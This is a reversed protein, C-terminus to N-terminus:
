GVTARRDEPRPRDTPLGEALFHLSREIEPLQPTPAGNLHGHLMGLAVTTQVPVGVEALQQAFLEGSSRLDDYESLVIRTPPLGELNALGPMLQSPIDSLRGLYARTIQAVDDATFRVLRPLARMEAALDDPLAPVPFHLVPYALILGAPRVRGEDRLRVAASSALNGGASAGGIALGAANTGLEDTSATFWDWASVVDDLPVPFRVTDDALRYDVSVVVAGRAALEASVVHAEPMELDGTIFAGGHLWLLGPLRDQQDSPRYLRIPIDGHPGPLSRDEIVVLPLAYPGYPAAYAAAREALESTTLVDDSRDIGEILPFRAAILPHVPM